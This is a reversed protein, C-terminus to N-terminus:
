DSLVEIRRAIERATNYLTDKVTDFDSHNGVEILTNLKQVVVISPMNEMYWWNGKIIDQSGRYFIGAVSNRRNEQARVADRRSQFVSVTIDQLKKNQLVLANQFSIECKFYHYSMTDIKIGEEWFNRINTLKLQDIKAPDFYFLKENTISVKNDSIWKGQGDTIIKFSYYQGKSEEGNCYIEYGEHYSLIILTSDAMKTLDWHESCTKKMETYVETNVYDIDPFKFVVPEETLNEKKCQIFACIFLITLV